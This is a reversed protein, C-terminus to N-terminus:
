DEGGETINKDALIVYLQPLLVNTKDDLIV